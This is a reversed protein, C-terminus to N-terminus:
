ERLVESMNVLTYSWIVGTIGGMKGARCGEWSQTKHMRVAEHAQTYAWRGPSLCGVFASLGSSFRSKKGLLRWNDTTRWSPTLCGSCSGTCEPIPVPTKFTSISAKQVLAWSSPGGFTEIKCLWRPGPTSSSRWQKRDGAPEDQVGTNLWRKRQCDENRVLCWVATM